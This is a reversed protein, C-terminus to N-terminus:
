CAAELLGETHHNYPPPNNRLTCGKNRWQCLSGIHNAKVVVELNTRSYEDSQLRFTEYGLLLPSCGHLPYLINQLKRLSSESDPLQLICFGSVKSRIRVVVDSIM